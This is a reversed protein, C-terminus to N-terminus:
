FIHLSPTTRLLETTLAIRQISHLSQPPGTTTITIRYAAAAITPSKNGSLDAGPLVLRVPPHRSACLRWVDNRTSSKEKIEGNVGATGYSYLKVGRLKNQLSRRSELITRLRKYSSPTSLNRKTCIENIYRTNVCM